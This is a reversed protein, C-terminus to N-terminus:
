NQDSFNQDNFRRLDSFCWFNLIKQIKVQIRKSIRHKQYGRTARMVYLVKREKGSSIRRDSKRLDSFSSKFSYFFYFRVETTETRILKDLTKNNKKKNQKKKKKKKKQLPVWM